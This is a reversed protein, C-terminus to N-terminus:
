QCKIIKESIPATPKQNLVNFGVLMVKENIPIVM